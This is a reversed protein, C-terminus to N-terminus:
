PKWAHLYKLRATSPLFRCIIPYSGILHHLIEEMLLISRLPGLVIIWWTRFAVRRTEPSVKPPIFRDLTAEPSQDSGLRVLIKAGDFILDDRWLPPLLFTNSVVWRTVRTSIQYFFVGSRQSSWLIWPHYIQRCRGKGNLISYEPYVHYTYMGTGHIDHIRQTSWWNWWCWVRFIVNFCWGGQLNPVENEM